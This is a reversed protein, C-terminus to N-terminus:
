KGGGLQRDQGYHPSYPGYLLCKNCNQALLMADASASLKYGADSVTDGFCGQRPIDKLEKYDNHVIGIEQLEM